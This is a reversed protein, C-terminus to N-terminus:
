KKLQDLVERNVTVKYKKRLAKLWQQELDAQYDAVVAGRADAAEEPAPIIRGQFAYYAPWRKNPTEPKPGDFALYDTIANEGKAALVREVKIDRGFRQRMQASLQDAAIAKTGISDTYAKALALVSDNPAFIVFSKFKPADWAYKKRNAKFYRKLGKTDKTARDWVNRNSIDFLLIGDRYERLLNRYETNESELLDAALLFLARDYATNIAKNISSLAMQKNMGPIVPSDALASAVSTVTGGVTFAPMINSNIYAATEASVTDALADAKLITELAELSSQNVMSGTRAALARLTAQVPLDARADSEIQKTITERLSDFTGVPRSGTKHIIHYGFDTAFPESIEGPAMAFAISDFPQVMMGQAFWGLDGGRQASGPDQSYQRALLAFDEGGKALTYISDIRARAAAKNADSLGRTSLLIHSAHVEGLNPQTSEVRIIHWGFGSNVPESIEGVQTDFSAKEFPYPFRGAIVTGMLGGRVKSPNDISNAMAAAEYTTEGSRIAQLISDAMVKGSRGDPMMAPLMIHSVTVSRLHHDYAERELQAVVEPDRLYPRALDDRYKAYEARFTATTDLGAHQADAVKLRYDTFLRLYSELTQPEVQQANNKNYLYEFESLKIDRGDVTMLTPDTQAAATAATGILLATLIKAIKM